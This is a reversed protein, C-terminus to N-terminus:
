IKIKCKGDKFENMARSAINKKCGSILVKINRDNELNYKHKELDIEEGEIYRILTFFINYETEPTKDELMRLGYESDLTLFKKNTVIQKIYKIPNIYEEKSILLLIREYYKSALVDENCAVDVYDALILENKITKALYLAYKLKNPKNIRKSLLDIAKDYFEQINKEGM